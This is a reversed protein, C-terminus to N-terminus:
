EDAGGGEDDGAGAAAGGKGTSGVSSQLARVLAEEGSVLDKWTLELGKRRGKETLKMGEPSIALVYPNGDISLERKLVKDLKTVM